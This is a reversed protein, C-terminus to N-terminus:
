PKPLPMYAVVKLRWATKFESRAGCYWKDISMPNFWLENVYYAEEKDKTRSKAICWCANKPEGDIWQGFLPESPQSVRNEVPCFKEAAQNAANQIWEIPNKGTHGDYPDCNNRWDETHHYAKGACAVASLIKDIEQIKTEEFSYYYANMRM